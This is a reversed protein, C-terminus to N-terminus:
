EPEFLTISSLVEEFWPQLESQWREAPAVGFMTFFHTDSPRAFVARVVYNAGEARGKLEVVLGPSGDVTLTSREMVQIDLVIAGIFGAAAEDLTVSVEPRGAFIM